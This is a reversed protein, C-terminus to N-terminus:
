RVFHKENLPALHQFLREVFALSVEENLAKLHRIKGPDTYKCIIEIM